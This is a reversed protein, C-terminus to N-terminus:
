LLTFHNVKLFILKCWKYTDNGFLLWCGRQKANNRPEKMNWIVPWMLTFPLVNLVSNFVSKIIFFLKLCLIKKKKIPFTIPSVRNVESWHQIWISKKPLSMISIRALISIKSWQFYMYRLNESPPINWQEPPSHEKRAM